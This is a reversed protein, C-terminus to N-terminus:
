VEEEIEIEYAPVVCVFRENASYHREVEAKDMGYLGSESYTNKYVDKFIARWLQVKRKKKESQIKAFYEAAERPSLFVSPHSDTPKKKGDLMYFGKQTQIPLTDTNYIEIIKSWGYKVDFIKMGVQWKV